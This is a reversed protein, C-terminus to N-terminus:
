GVEETDRTWMGDHKRWLDGGWRRDLNMWEDNVIRHDGPGAVDGGRIRATRGCIEACINTESTMKNTKEM